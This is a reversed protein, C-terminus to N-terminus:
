KAPSEALAALFDPHAGELWVYTGDSRIVRLVSM